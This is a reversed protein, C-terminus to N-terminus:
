AARLSPHIAQRGRVQSPSSWALSWPVRCVVVIDSAGFKMGIGAGCGNREAIFCVERGTVGWDGGAKPPEGRFEGKTGRGDGAVVSLGFVDKDGSGDVEPSAGGTTGDGAGCLGAGWAPYVGLTENSVNSFGTADINEKVRETFVSPYELVRLM